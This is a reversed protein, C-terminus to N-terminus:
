LGDRWLRAGRAARWRCVWARARRRDPRIPASWLTRCRASWARRSDGNPRGYGASDRPRRRHIANGRLVEFLQVANQELRRGPAALCQRRDGHPMTMRHQLVREVVGHPMTADLSRGGDRCMRRAASPGAADAVRHLDGTEEIMQAQYGGRQDIPGSIRAVPSRRDSANPSRKASISQDAPRIATRWTTM